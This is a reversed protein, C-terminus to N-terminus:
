AEAAGTWAVLAWRKGRTVPAVRHLARSPFLHVGGRPLTRPRGVLDPVVELAGGQYDAPDSLEVSMSVLRRAGSDAGADSHWMRFHGGEEYLLIQVTESVPGVPLGFEEAGAMFLADLRDFLWPADARAVLSSRVDRLAKDVRKESGGYLPGPETPAAAALAIIRDCDAGGFADTLALYTRSMM